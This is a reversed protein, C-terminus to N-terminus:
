ETTSETLYRGKVGHTENQIGPSDNVQGEDEVGDTKRKAYANM